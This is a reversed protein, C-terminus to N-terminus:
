SLNSIKRWSNEYESKMSLNPSFVDMGSKINHRALSCFTQGVICCLKGGTTKCAVVVRFQPILKPLCRGSLSHHIKHLNASSNEFCCLKVGGHLSDIILSELNVCSGLCIKPTKGNREAALAAIIAASIAFSFM